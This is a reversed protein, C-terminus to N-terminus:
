MRRENLYRLEQVSMLSLLGLIRLWLQWAGSLKEELVAMFQLFLFPSNNYSVHCKSCWEQLDWEDVMIRPLVTFIGMMWVM